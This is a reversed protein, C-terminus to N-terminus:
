VKAAGSLKSKKRRLYSGGGAAVATLSALIMSAPEPVAAGVTFNAEGFGTIAGDLVTDTDFTSIFDGGGLIASEIKATSGVIGTVTYAFRAIRITSSIGPVLGAAPGGVLDTAGLVKGIETPGGLSAPSTNFVGTTWLSDVDTVSTLGMVASGATQLLRGGASLLGESPFLTSGDTDSLTLDLLVTEGSTITKSWVGGGDVAGGVVQFGLILDANASTAFCLSWLVFLIRRLFFLTM